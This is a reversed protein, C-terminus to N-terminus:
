AAAELRLRGVGRQARLRNTNELVERDLAWWWNRFFAEGVEWAKGDFENMGNVRFGEATDDIDFVIQMIAMSDRAPPPRLPAPLSLACILKTRVSPWPLIDLLPHHPIRQQVDTPQLNLPVSQPQPTLTRLAFPDFISNACDLLNAVALGARLANLVPVELTADNSLPFSFASHGEKLPTAPRVEQNAPNTGHYGVDESYTADYPSLEIDGAQSITYQDFGLLMSDEDSYLSGFLDVNFGGKSVEPEPAPTQM